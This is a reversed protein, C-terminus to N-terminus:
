AHGRVRVALLPAIFIVVLVLSWANGDKFTYAEVLEQWSQHQVLRGFGFEFILTLCLWLLGVYLAQSTGLRGLGPVLLFSVAVIVISLLLGSVVLGVPKGFSPMLVAERFGGNLVACVLIVLWVATAKLTLMRRTM